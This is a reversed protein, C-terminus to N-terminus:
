SRRAGPRGAGDLRAPDRRSRGAAAAGSPARYHHEVDAYLLGFPASSAPGVAAGRRPEHELAKAIECAVVPGNGGFAFLAFDRPDRGRYTSVAKVARVMTGAAVAYVGYAAELSRWASRGAVKDQM